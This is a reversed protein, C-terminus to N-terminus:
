CRREGPKAAAWRDGTYEPYVPQNVNTVLVAYSQAAVAVPRNGHDMTNITKRYRM